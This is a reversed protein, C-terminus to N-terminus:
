RGGVLKDQLSELEDWKGAAALVAQDPWTTPNHVASMGAEDLIDRIAQPTMEALESFTIVGAEALVSAIKPGIGEIKKLDDPEDVEAVATAMRSAGATSTAAEPAVEEPEMAVPLGAPTVAKVPGGIAVPKVEDVDSDPRMDIRRLYTRRANKDGLAAFAIFSGIVLLLPGYCLLIGSYQMEQFM